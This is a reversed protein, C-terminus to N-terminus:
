NSRGTTARWQGRAALFSTSRTGEVKRSDLTYVYGVHPLTQLRRIFTPGLKARLNCIHANVNSSLLQKGVFAQRLQKRSVVKGASLVLLNFIASEISPLMIDKGGMTVTCSRTSIVVDGVRINGATEAEKGTAVGMAAECFQSLNHLKTGVKLWAHSEGIVKYKRVSTGFEPVIYFNLLKSLAPDVTCILAPLGREVGQARLLWRADGNQTCRVPRCIHVALRLHEDLEVVQRHTQGPLRIIRLREPFLDKLRTLLDSRLRNMERLRTVSKFAHLSPRYGILEYAHLVSGFRKCYTRHDFIGRGKLLKETLKGERALVRRMGNLLFEDSKRPHTKRKAILKQVRDFVEPEVIPAFAEMKRTWLDRAVKLSPGSLKKQTKGWTNCGIYKDNKLVRYVTLHDWPKGNDFTKNQRTLEVAIQRPTKRENAALAFITRVCDVERKPGPVLIVRDSKVAKREYKKLIRRQRGDASIMMRRMGYGAVGGVRFGMLALRRQGAFVKVGLERSYEAAMTRKLVKMISSPMTGDNEFQEACYRVPIGANKCLFEYHAGEDVDQFRGWRSVDYVLIAKYQAQGNVVDQLLRQLGTRTKLAIGSRGVDTYTSVIAYGYQEAYRQIASQQNAISFQQDETSMRVYQAAPVLM